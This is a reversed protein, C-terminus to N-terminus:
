KKMTSILRESDHRDSALLSILSLDANLLVYSAVVEKVIDSLYSVYYTLLRPITDEVM